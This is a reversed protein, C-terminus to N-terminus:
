VVGLQLLFKLFGRSTSGWATAAAPPCAAACGVFGRWLGCRGGRRGRQGFGGATWQAGDRRGDEGGECCCYCGVGGGRGHGGAGGRGAAAARLGPFGGRGLDVGGSGGVGEEARVLGAEGDGWVGGGDGGGEAGDGGGAEGGAGGWGCDLAGRFVGGRVEEGGARACVGAWVHARVNGQEDLAHARGRHVVPRRRRPAVDVPRAVVVVREGVEVVPTDARRNEPGIGSRICTGPHTYTCPRSRVIQYGRDDDVPQPGQGLERKVLGLARLVM